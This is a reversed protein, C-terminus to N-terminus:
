RLYSSIFVFDYDTLNLASEANNKAKKYLKEAHKKTEESSGEARLIIMCINMVKSNSIKVMTM